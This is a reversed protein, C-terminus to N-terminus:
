AASAAEEQRAGEFKGSIQQAAYSGKSTSEILGNYVHEPVGAYHYIRGGRFQLALVQTDARYGYAELNGSNSGENPHMRIGFKEPALEPPRESGMRFMRDKQRGLAATLHLLIDKNEQCPLKEDLARHRDILMELVEETTTGPLLSGDGMPKVFQVVNGGSLWYTYPAELAVPFDPQEVPTASSGPVKMEGAHDDRFDAFAQARERSSAIQEPSGGLRECAEAYPAIANGLAWQDRANFLMLPVHPPIQRGTARNIALIFYKPDQFM